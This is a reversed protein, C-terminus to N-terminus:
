NRVDTSTWTPFGGVAYSNSISVPDDFVQIPALLGYTGVLELWSV